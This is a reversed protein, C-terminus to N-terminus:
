SLKSKPLKAVFIDGEPSKFVVGDNGEKLAKNIFQKEGYKKYYETLVKCVEAGDKTEEFTQQRIQENTLKNIDMKKRIM